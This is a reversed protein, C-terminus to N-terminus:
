IYLIFLQWEVIDVKKGRGNGQSQPVETYLEGGRGIKSTGNEMLM